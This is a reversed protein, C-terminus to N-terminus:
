SKFNSTEPIQHSIISPSQLGQGQQDDQLTQGLDQIQLPVSHASELHQSIKKMLKSASAAKQQEKERNVDATLRGNQCFPGEQSAGRGTMLKSALM